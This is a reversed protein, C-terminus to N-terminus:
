RTSHHAWKNKRHTALNNHGLQQIEYGHGELYEFL